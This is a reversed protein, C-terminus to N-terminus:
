PRSLRSSKYQGHEAMNVGIIFKGSILQRELSALHDLLHAFIVRFDLQNICDSSIFTLGEEMLFLYDDARRTGHEVPAALELKYIWLLDFHENQIFGVDHDGRLTVLVLTYSDLPSHRFVALHQQKRSCKLLGDPAKSLANNGLGVDDFQLPLLLSQVGDFLIIHQTVALLLLKFSQTVDVAGDGDSLGHDETM